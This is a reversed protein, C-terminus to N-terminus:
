HINQEIHSGKSKNGMRLRRPWSQLAKNILEQPLDEWCRKLARKLGDLTTPKRNKIQSKMWGWVFYDMPALDPSNPTWEEPSIYNMHQDMYERTAKSAHSPASDQHFVYDGQPYLRLADKKLFPKLVEEIYYQSNIKAGPKIFLLSTKGAFSVGGWAMIGKSHAEAREYPVMKENKEEPKVYQFETKKGCDSLYFWAEDTTIINKWKEGNLQRYLAWSRSRRKDVNDPSLKHVKTKKATKIGFTKHIHYFVNSQTCKVVGAMHRQTPPNPKTAM